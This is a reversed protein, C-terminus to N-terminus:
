PLNFDYYNSIGNNTILKLRRNGTGLLSSVNFYVENEPHLYTKSCSFPKDTGNVLINFYTTKLTVSGTNEVTINIDYNSGNVESTISTININTQVQEIARDRMDNFADHLDTVTPITTGVFIEIAMVISLGIIAAAAILSFGM